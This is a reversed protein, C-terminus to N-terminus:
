PNNFNIFRFGVPFFPDGLNCSDSVHFAQLHLHKVQMADRNIWRPFAQQADKRNRYIFSTRNMASRSPLHCISSIFDPGSQVRSAESFLVASGADRSRDFTFFNRSRILCKYVEASTRSEDIERRKSVWHQYVGGYRPFGYQPLIRRTLLMKAFIILKYTM